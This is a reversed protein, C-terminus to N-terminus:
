QGSWVHAEPRAAGVPVSSAQPGAVERGGGSQWRGPGGIALQRQRRQDGGDAPRGSRGPPGWGRARSGAGCVASVQKCPGTPAGSDRASLSDDAATAAAASGWNGLSNIGTAPPPPASPLLWLLRFPLSTEAAIGACRCPSFSLWRPVPNDTGGSPPRPWSAASSPHPPLPPVSRSWRTDAAGRPGSGPPRAASRPPARCGAGPSRRSRGSARPPPLFLQASSEPAALARAAPFALPRSLLSSPATRHSPVSCAGAATAGGVGPGPPPAPPRLRLSRPARPRPRPPIRGLPARPPAAPRRPPPPPTRAPSRRFKSGSSGPQLRAPRPSTVASSDSSHRAAPAGHAPGPATACKQLPPKPFQKFTLASSPPRTFSGPTLSTPTSFSFRGCGARGLAAGPSLVWDKLGKKPQFPDKSDNDCFIDWIAETDWM